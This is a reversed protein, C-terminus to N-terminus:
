LSYKGDIFKCEIATRGGRGTWVCMCVYVCVCV